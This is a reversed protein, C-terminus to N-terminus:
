VGKSEALFHDDTQKNKKGRWLFSLILAERLLKDGRAAESEEWGLAPRM